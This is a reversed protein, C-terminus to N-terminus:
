VDTVDVIRIYSLVDLRRTRVAPDKVRLVIHYRGAESPRWTHSWLGWTAATARPPCDDVDTWTDGTRFRVQLANASTTGGWVIGVIRYVPREQVDWQEVRVPTAAVDIAAPQFDRALRADRPQHTRAAYELMQSTPPVDAAVVDIRTVWKICACAYWGPVVLRMPAGHHKPLPAGNMRTALYAGARELEERAFIWSAGPTSTRAPSEDDVGTVRVHADDPAGARDLLAGLPVGDWRAAGILGYNNPNTNGACELLHTGMPQVLSSLAAPQFRQPRRVRGGVALPWARAADARAPCATRVFFRDNPTTLEDAALASLDTFLRADLGSGLLRNLPPNDPRLPDGLALTGILRGGALPPQRAALQALPSLWVAAGAGSAALFRRRTVRTDAM